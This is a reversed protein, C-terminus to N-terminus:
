DEEEDEASLNITVSVESDTVTVKGEGYADTSSADIYYTGPAINKFIIVGASNAEEEVIYESNELNEASTAIGVLAEASPKGDLLVTVKISGTSTQMSQMSIFTLCVLVASALILLKSKM